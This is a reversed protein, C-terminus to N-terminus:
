WPGFEGVDRVCQRECVLSAMVLNSKVAEAMVESDDLGVRGGCDDALHAGREGGIDPRAQVVEPEDIFRHEVILARQLLELRHRDRDERPKRGDAEHVAIQHLM